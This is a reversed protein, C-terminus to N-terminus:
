RKVCKRHKKANMFGRSGMGEQNSAVVKGSPVGSM